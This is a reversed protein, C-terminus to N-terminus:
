RRARGLIDAVASDLVQTSREPELGAVDVTVLTSGLPLVARHVYPPVSPPQALVWAYGLARIAVAEPSSVLEIMEVGDVAADASFRRADELAAAADPYGGVTVTVGGFGTPQWARSESSEAGSTLEEGPPEPTDVPEFGDGPTAPFLESPPTETPGLDVLEREARQELDFSAEPRWFCLVDRGDESRITATLVGDFGDFTYAVLGDIPAIDSGDRVDGLALEGTREVLRHVQEAFLDVQADDIQMEDCRLDMVAEVDERSIAAAYERLVEAARKVEPVEDQGSSTDAGSCSTVATAM